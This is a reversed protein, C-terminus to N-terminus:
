KLLGVFSNMTAVLACVLLPILPARTRTNRLLHACSASVLSFM